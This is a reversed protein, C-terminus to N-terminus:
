ITNTNQIVNYTSGRNVVAIKSSSNCTLCHALVVTLFPHGILTKNNNIPALDPRPNLFKVFAVNSSKM